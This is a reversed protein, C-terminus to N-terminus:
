RTIAATVPGRGSRKIWLRVALRGFQESHVLRYRQTLLRYCAGGHIAEVLQMDPLRLSISWVRRHALLSPRVQWFPLDAGRFNGAGLPSVGQTLDSLKRFRGPYALRIKRFFDNVFVLGDNRHAYAAVYGAVEGYGGRSLPERQRQQDGFQAAFVAVCIAVVAVSQLRADGIRRALLVAGAGALLAAGAEAYFVYRADFLPHVAVSAIALVAAPVVLLPVAVAPLTVARRAPDAPAARRWKVAGVVALALLVVAVPTSAGFYLHFLSVLSDADPVILWSVQGTQGSSLAVLPVVPLLGAVCAVMWHRMTRRGVRVWCLTAGHAIVVAVSLENLYGALLLLGAYGAWRRTRVRALDPVDETDLARLLVLTSSVVALFVLAYPRADQAYFSVSPTCAMLMGAALGVAPSGTLRRGIVALVGAGASLALVSPIRLYEPSGGVLRSWAHMFLYYLGHVADVRGLLNTLEPLTLYRGAWMTAAEDNSLASGAALGWLAMVLVAAAPLLVPLNRRVARVAAQGRAGDRGSRVVTM